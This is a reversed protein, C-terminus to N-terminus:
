PLVALGEAKATKDQLDDFSLLEGASMELALAAHLLDVSRV